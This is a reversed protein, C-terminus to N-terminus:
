QDEGPFVSDVLRAERLLNSMTELGQRVRKKAAGLSCQMSDAIERYKLQGFFRLRIADAQSESLERLLRQLLQNRENVMAQLEPGTSSSSANVIRDEALPHVTQSPQRAFRQGHRRCQNLLITWLWTRFNFASKYTHLSKYACVFTDQVVDEALDSRGLRNQALHLLPGQYRHVLHAFQDVDGALVAVVIDLDDVQDGHNM